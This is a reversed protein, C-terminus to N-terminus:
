VHHISAIETANLPRYEGPALTTDLIIDAIQERHLQEVRNNLAAFMRKVQHYKGEHLTLRVECPSIIELQAPKTRKKESRLLIGEAFQIVADAAIPEALLVRYIKAKHTKPSTVRHNWQGDDTILVLGTTDIDLRGAGQLSEMDDEDLLEFVTAHQSDQNACVYGVPKHLMFYRPGTPAVKMGNWHVQADAAINCTPDTICNGDVLVDGLKIIQRAEKRSLGSFNSLYKDLRM